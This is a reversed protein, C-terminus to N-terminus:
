RVTGSYSAQIDGGERFYLQSADRLPQFDWPTRRGTDLAAGVLRRATQSRRVATDLAQVDWTRDVDAELEARVHTHGTCEALNRLEDPDADLDFLLPPDTPCSILKFPGKRVMVMPAKVGEATYEACVLGPGDMGSGSALPALSLGDIPAALEPLAGDCAVDLLTPFLDLHSVNAGVRRPAFAFPAHLILPVRVSWEFFSMKFFLGREGLSDGHDSTFVVLTDDSAGIEDLATLLRGVKADVYNTVAFYARRMRMVDTESIETLHRGTLFWHRRSHPDREGLPIDAVRPPDIEADRYKEWWYPPALYPDHPSIYSVTLAFPREDSSDAHEHLWRIAEFEVEDDYAVNVSRRHPGADLVANMSHYWELWSEDDLSWDPSWLFDAPYVDTTVREEYGHLQDPGVFHMKGALCTRYGAVRLYHHVTPTSAPFEVANDFAGIRSPLRGSLMSFRAPACLPFNCYANEFVVGKGALRDLHPTEVGTGGYASLVQPALQDVMIFLINPRRAM